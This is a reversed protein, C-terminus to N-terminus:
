NDRCHNFFECPGYRGWCAALARPWTNTTTYLAEVAQWVKLDKHQRRMQSKPPTVIERHFGPAKTKTVVNVIVGTLPGYKRALKAKYYLMLEGIIEGDLHWGETVGRDLRAASNHTIIDNAAFNHVGLVTIDYTMQRGIALISAVPVWWVPEGLVSRVQEDDPFLDYLGSATISRKTSVGGGFVRNRQVGTMNLGSLRELPIPRDDGAKIAECAAICLVDPYKTMRSSVVDMFLRKANRTVVKTTWYPVRNGRYNVTSRHVSAFIGLTLLLHQVDRCLQESRSAYAMRVKLQPPKGEREERFVDICGDTDWLASVLTATAAHPLGLYATPVFKEAAACRYLGHRELLDRPGNGVAQSLAVQEAHEKAADIRYPWRLIDCAAKFRRMVPGNKCFSIKKTMCGDGLMLGVFEIEATSPIVREGLPPARLHSYNPVAVFDNERLAGVPVWGRATLFPHNDSADLFQGNALTVRFVERVGNPVPRDANAHTLANITDVNERSVAVLSTSVLNRSAEEVTRVAGRSDYLRTTGALCKHEVIYTGPVVRANDVVKAILDYRCTNPGGIEKTHLEVALPVLYDNQQEYFNAYADFLRWAENIYEPEGGHAILADCLMGAEPTADTPATGGLVDIMRQYYVAMFAHFVSGIELPAPAKQDRLLKKHHRLYFKQPCLQLDRYRSWGHGSAGGLTELGLEAFALDLANNMPVVDPNDISIRTLGPIHPTHNM